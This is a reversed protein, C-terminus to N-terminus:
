SIPINKLREIASDTDIGIRTYYKRADPYRNKMKM